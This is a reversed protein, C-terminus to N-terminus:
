RDNNSRRNASETDLGKTLAAQESAGHRRGMLSCAEPVRESRGVQGPGCASSHTEGLRGGARCEPLWSTRCSRPVVCAPSQVTGGGLGDLLVDRSDASGCVEATVCLSLLPM